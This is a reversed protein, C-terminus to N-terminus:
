KSVEQAGEELIDTSNEAAHVYTIEKDQPCENANFCDALDRFAAHWRRVGDSDLYESGNRVPCKTLVKIHPLIILTDYDRGAADRQDAPLAQDHLRDSLPEFNSSVAVVYQGLADDCDVARKVYDTLQNSGIGFFFGILATIIIGLLGIHAKKGSDQSSAQEAKDTARRKRLRPLFRRRRPQQPPDSAENSQDDAQNGDPPEANGTDPTTPAEDRQESQRDGAM